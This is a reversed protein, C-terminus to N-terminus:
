SPASFMQCVRALWVAHGGFATQFRARADASLAQVVKGRKLPKRFESSAGACRSKEFVAFFLTWVKTSIDMYEEQKLQDHESRKMRPDIVLRPSSWRKIKKKVTSLLWAMDTAISSRNMGTPLMEYLQSMRSKEWAVGRGM